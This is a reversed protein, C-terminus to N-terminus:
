ALVLRRHLELREMCTAHKANKKRTKIVGSFCEEVMEDLIGSELMVFPNAFIYNKFNLTRWKFYQNKTYLAIENNSLNVTAYQRLEKSSASKYEERIIILFKILM